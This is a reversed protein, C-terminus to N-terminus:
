LEKENKKGGELLKEFKEYYKVTVSKGIFTVDIREVKEEIIKQQSEYNLGIFFQRSTNEGIDNIQLRLNSLEEKMRDAEKKAYQHNVVNHVSDYVLRNLESSTRIYKNQLSALEANCYAAKVMMNFSDDALDTIAKESITRRCEPCKYYLYVKGSKKKLTSVQLLQKQCGTCYCKNRYLYPHRDYKKSNNIENAKDWIERTVIPKIFKPKNVGLFEFCGYYLKNKVLAGITSEVWAKNLVNQERFKKAITYNSERDAAIETFVYRVIKAEEPVIELQHHDDDRRHYGIPVMGKSYNGQRASEEIGRLTRDKLTDLEWQAILVIINVFFRGMQNSTDINNSLSVLSVSCTDFKTLLENLDKLSRTLRDLCYVVIIDIEHREMQDLIKQIEPRELNKGSCGEEKRITLNYEQDGYELKCFKTIRRVQDAMNFGNHAQDLTSERAYGVINIM